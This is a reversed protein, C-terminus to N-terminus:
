ELIKGYMRWGHWCNCSQHLIYNDFYCIGKQLTCLITCHCKHILTCDPTTHVPNQPTLKPLSTYTKWEKMSYLETSYM